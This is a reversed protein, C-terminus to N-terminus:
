SRSVSVNSTHDVASSGNVHSISGSLGKLSNGTRAMLILLDAGSGGVEHAALWGNSGTALNVDTELWDWGAGANEQISLHGSLKGTYNVSSTDDNPGDAVKISLNANAAIAGDAAINVGNVGNGGNVAVNVNSGSLSGTFQAQFQDWGNGLSATLGLDANNIAGFVASVQNNGRGGNLTVGVAQPLAHAKPAPLSIGKSFDLRVQNDGNGLQLTLTESQKLTNTLTYSIKDDAATSEIEVNKVGRHTTTRGNFNVTIDGQGDDRVTMLVNSVNDMLILPPPTTAVVTPCCRDELRELQPKVRGSRGLGPNMERSHM